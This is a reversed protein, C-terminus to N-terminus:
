LETSEVNYFLISYLKLYLYPPFRRITVVPPGSPSTELLVFIIMENLEKM